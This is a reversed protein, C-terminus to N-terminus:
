SPPLREVDFGLAPGLLDFSKDTTLVTEDAGCDLGINVDGLRGWCNRGKADRPVAAAQLAVDGMDRDKARDSAKLANGADAFRASRAAATQEQACIDDTKRCRWNLTLRGDPGRVPTEAALPCQCSDRVSMQDEFMEASRYRILARARIEATKDLAAQGRVLMALVRLAQGSSRWQLQSLGVLVDDLTANTEFANVVATASGDIVNKWERRAHVSTVHRDGGLLDRIERQRERSGAWREIHASTDVLYTPM